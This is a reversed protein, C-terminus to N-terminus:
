PLESSAPRVHAVGLVAWDRDQVLLVAGQDPAIDPLPLASAKEGPEIVTASRVIHAEQLTRGANEGARVGTAHAADYVIHTVTAGEPCPGFRGLLGRERRRLDVEVPFAHSAAMAGQVAARDSGVVMRTGNVILAPTYVEDNLLRAYRRQRQTWASSAYPDLWGLNNWYDVHWTLAVIGPRHSLERLLADAPPCSSCGQSTFLEVVVPSGEAMVTASAALIAPGAIILSRRRM